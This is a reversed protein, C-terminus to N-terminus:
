VARTAVRLWAQEAEPLYPAITEYVKAHYENLLKKERESMQAADVGDLDFPVLTLPEFYLFQGYENKEGECCVILNEHRIGFRGELYLGPEDSTVMGAELVANDKREPVIKWRFGNPGM